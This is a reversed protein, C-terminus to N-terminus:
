SLDLNPMTWVIADVLGSIEQQYNDKFSIRGIMKESTKVKTMQDAMKVILTHPKIGLKWKERNKEVLESSVYSAQLAGTDFLVNKMKVGWRNVTFEGERFVGSRITKMTITQLISDLCLSLNIQDIEQERQQQEENLDKLEFTM